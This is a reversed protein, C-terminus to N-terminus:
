LAQIRALIGDMLSNHAGNLARGDTPVGDLVGGRSDGYALFSFRTIGASAAESPFPTAPPEIPKAVIPPAPEQVVFAHGALTAAVLLIAISFLTRVASSRLMAGPREPSRSM